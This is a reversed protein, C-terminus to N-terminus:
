WRGHARDYSGLSFSVLAPEGNAAGEGLRYSAAVVDRGKGDASTQYAVPVLFRIDGKGVRLVLSGDKDISAADAGSLRMRIQGPDAKPQLMFDYELRNANGYFAADVGPYVSSYKVRSYTPINSFWTKPATTPFYSDKGLLQEEGRVEPALNAGMMEMTVTKSDVSDKAGGLRLQARTAELQLTYVPFGPPSDRRLNM